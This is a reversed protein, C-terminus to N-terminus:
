FEPLTLPGTEREYTRRKGRRQNRRPPGRPPVPPSKRHTHCVCRHLRKRQCAGQLTSGLNDSYSADKRWSSAELEAKVMSNGASERGSVREQAWHGGRTWLAVPSARAGEGAVAYTCGREGGHCAPLSLDLCLRESYAERPWPSELGWVGPLM